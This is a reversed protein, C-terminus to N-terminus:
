LTVFRDGSFNGKHEACAVYGLQNSLVHTGGITRDISRHSHGYVWLDVGSSEIYDTLDVTFGSELSSGVFEPAVLLRSPVHHTVVVKRAAGSAAVAEKIFSLDREHLANYSTATFEGRHLRILRFDNMGSRLRPWASYPVHSWLTSLIFDTDDVRVVRNEFMRVHPRLELAWSDPYDDAFSRYYEHNGPILLTESFHEECWDFFRHKRFDEYERLPFTDGALVLVDGMVQFPSRTVFVSNDHFELHLDSAYQVKM